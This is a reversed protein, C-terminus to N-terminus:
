NLDTPKLPDQRAKMFCDFHFEAFDSYISLWPLAM